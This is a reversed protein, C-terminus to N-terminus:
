QPIYGSDAPFGQWATYQTGMNYTYGSDESFNQKHGSSYRYVCLDDYGAHYDINVPTDWTDVSGASSPGDKYAVESNNSGSIRIYKGFAFANVWGATCAMNSKYYGTSTLAYQPYSPETGTQELWYATATGYNSIAYRMISAFALYIDQSVPSELVPIRAIVPGNLEDVVSYTSYSYQVANYASGSYLNGPYLRQWAEGTVPIEITGGASFHNILDMPIRVTLRNESQSYDLYVASDATNGVPIMKQTATFEQYIDYTGSATFGTNIFTTPAGGTQISAILSPCDALKTDTSVTVGKASIASKIDERCGSIRTIEEAITSM